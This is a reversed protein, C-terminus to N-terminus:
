KPNIAQQGITGVTAKLLINFMEDATGAIPGDTGTAKTIFNDALSAWPGVAYGGISATDVLPVGIGGVYDLPGREKDVGKIADKVAMALAAMALAASIASITGMKGLFDPSCIEPNMKKNIRRAITNGFLIPFSKLQAVLLMKPDSMWLPRNGAQPELAVDTTIKRMWPVLVDRVSITNGRSNVFTSDLFNDDLMKDYIKGGALEGVQKFDARTLGNERLERDLLAGQTKNLKGKSLKVYQEQIMNLGATATWVRVFNTYQTLFLAAPSRFYHNLIINRDGAMMKDVKEAMAPNTAMGMLRILDRGFSSRAAKGEGGQYISRLMGNLAYTAAVPAAKLQNFWGVRQGIWAPETWSSITALGLYSVATVTSVAKMAAVGAREGETKPKKYVHHYADYLGWLKDATPDDLINQEKLINISENLRNAKDGGFAESSAVRTTASILYDEISKLTDNSRFEPDLKEWNAQRRKEFSSKGLGGKKVDARIQESTLTNPDIENIINNAVNQAEEKDMGMDEILSRLLGEPNKKAAKYDVGRTLYGEIHGITLGDKGLTDGLLKHINEQIKAIKAIDKDLERIKEPSLSQTLDGRAKKLDYITKPNKEELKAAIYDNVVPRVYAGMEGAALFHKSWKNRIDEFPTVFKGSYTYKQAEFSVKDQRLNSGTEVAMLSGTIDNMHAFAKGTKVKKRIDAFENSSKGLLLKYAEGRLVALKSKPDDPINFLEPVVDPVKKLFDKESILSIDGKETAPGEYSALLDQYQKEYDAVGSKYKDGAKELTKYDVYDLLRKEKIRQQNPARGKIYGPGAGFAGGATAGVAINTYLEDSEIGEWGLESTRMLNAYQTGETVGERFMSKGSEKGTVFLIRGLKDKETTTLKTALEKFTTKAPLDVGKMLKAWAIPNILDLGANEAAAWGANSMESPTMNEPTKGSAEAHTAVAEDLQLLWNVGATLGGVGVGAVKSVTPGKMLLSSLTAGFMMLANQSGGEAVKELLFGPVDSMEQEGIQGTYEPTYDLKGEAGEEAVKAGYQQAWDPVDLGMQPLYKSTSTGLSSKFADWSYGLSDSSTGNFSGLAEDFDFGELYDVGEDGAGIASDFDFGELYDEEEKTFFVM